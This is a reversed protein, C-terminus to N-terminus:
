KIKRFPVALGNHTIVVDGGYGIISIDDNEHFIPKGYAGNAIYPNIKALVEGNDNLLAFIPFDTAQADVEIMSETGARTVAMPRKRSMSSVHQINYPTDNTFTIFFSGAKPQMMGGVLVHRLGSNEDVGFNEAAQISAIAFAFSLLGILLKKM